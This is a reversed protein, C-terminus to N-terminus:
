ARSSVSAVLAAGQAFGAEIVEDRASGRMLNVGMAAASDADPSIVTVDCGRRRLAAAEIAAVSRSLPGLWGLRNSGAPSMSGTPNLCILRGGREVEAADMNTPSWVGGDVFERGAITIPQFVGPIACSAEVADGVDARPADNAGFVVREGTAIDVATVRLRGDFSAGTAAVASGLGALSRRGRPVRSLATRRLLRGGPATTNLVISALPGAVGGAIAGILDDPSEGATQEGPDQPPPEPLHGLRTAPDVGAALMAAVISGASTGVFAGSQSGVFGGARELGVLLSSMWAEGLIGGGGLVLCDPPRDQRMM